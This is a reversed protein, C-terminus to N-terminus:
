VGRNPCREHHDSLAPGTPLEIGASRPCKQRLRFLRVPRTPNSTSTFAMAVVAPYTEVASVM